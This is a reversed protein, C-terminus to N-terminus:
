KNTPFSPLGITKEIRVLIVPQYFYDKDASCGLPVVQVKGAIEEAYLAAMQKEVEETSGKLVKYQKAM